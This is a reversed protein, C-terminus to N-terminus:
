GEYLHGNYQTASAPGQNYGTQKTTVNGVWTAGYVSPTQVYGNVSGIFHCGNRQSGSDEKTNNKWNGGSNVDGCTRGKVTHGNLQNVGAQATNGSWSSGAANSGARTSREGSGRSYNDSMTERSWISATHVSERVAVPPQRVVMDARGTQGNPYSNGADSRLGSRLARGNHQMIIPDMATMQTCKDIKDLVRCQQDQISVALTSKLIELNKSHESLRREVRLFAWIRYIRRKQLLSALDDQQQIAKLISQTHSIIEKTQLLPNQEINGSLVRLSQLQAQYEKLTETSRRVKDVIELVYICQGALQCAAGVAGLTELAM